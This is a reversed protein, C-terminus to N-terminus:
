ENEILVKTQSDQKNRIFIIKQYGFKFELVFDLDEGKSYMFLTRWFEEWFTLSREGLYNDKRTSITEHIDFYHKDIINQISRLEGISFDENTFM